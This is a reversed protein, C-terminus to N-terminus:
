RRRAQNYYDAFATRTLPQGLKDLERVVGQILHDMGIESGQEAALYAAALVCNKINGGTLEFQGALFPFDLEGAVPAGAPFM